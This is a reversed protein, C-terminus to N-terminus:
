YCINTPCVARHKEIQLTVHYIEGRMCIASAKELIDCGEHLTDVNVAVHATLLVSGRTISWAHLDHVEKVNPLGLIEKEIGELDVHTPVTEMLVGLSQNLIQITSWIVLLGFLFTCMPDAIQWHPKVWIIIGAICVGISQILDGLAHIYAAHVNLNIFDKSSNEGGHSHGHHDHSHGHHDHGHGHHDHSHGHHDHGHGHTCAEGGHSHGLVFMLTSNVLLAIVAVITMIKGDIFREGTGLLIERTRTVAEKMLFFTLLWIILVSIVAGIIEARQYGFTYRKNPKKSAIMIALLSIFFSTSDSLMHAADTMIALSQAIAGGVFELVMFSLSLGLAILLKRKTRATEEDSSTGMDAFFARLRTICRAKGDNRDSSDDSGRRLLPRAPSALDDGAASGAGYLAERDGGM